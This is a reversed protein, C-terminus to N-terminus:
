TTYSCIKDALKTRLDSHLAFLLFLWGSFIFSILFQFCPQYHQKRNFPLEERGLAQLGKLAYCESDNTEYIYANLAKSSCSHFQLFYVLMLLM